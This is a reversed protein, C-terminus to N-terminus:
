CGFKPYQHIYIASSRRVCSVAMCFCDLAEDYKELSHYAKGLHIRCDVTQENSDGSEAQYISFAEEFLNIALNKCKANAGDRSCDIGMKVYLDAVPISQAGYSKSATDVLSMFHEYRTKEVYGNSTVQTSSNFLALKSSARTGKLKSLISPNNDDQFGTISKSKTFSIDQILQLDQSFTKLKDGIFSNVRCDTASVAMMGDATNPLDDDDRSELGTMGSGCMADQIMEM